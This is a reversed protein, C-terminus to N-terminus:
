HILGYLVNQLPKKCDGSPLIESFFQRVKFKGKEM